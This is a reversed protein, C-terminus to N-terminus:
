TGASYCIILDCQYNNNSIHQHQEIPNPISTLVSKNLKPSHGHVFHRWLTYIDYHYYPSNKTLPALCVWHTPCHKRYLEKKKEPRIDYIYLQRSSFVVSNRSQQGRFYSKKIKEPRYLIHIHYLCDPLGLCLCHVHTM